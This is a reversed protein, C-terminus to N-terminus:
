NFVNGVAPIWASVVATFKPAFDTLFPYLFSDECIRNLPDDSISNVIWLMISILFAMKILGLLGGAAQDIIGLLTLSLSARIAKGILSVVIVILVFVFAFAVYPLFTENMDIHGKIMVMANGLLMFGGIVGLVLALLTIITM